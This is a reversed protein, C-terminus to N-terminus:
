GRHWWRRRKATISVERGVLDHLENWEDANLRGRLEIRTGSHIVDTSIAEIRM